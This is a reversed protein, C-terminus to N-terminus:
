CFVFAIKLPISSVLEEFFNEGKVRRRLIDSGDSGLESFEEPELSLIYTKHRFQSFNVISLASKSSSSLSSISIKLVLEVKKCFLGFIQFTKFISRVIFGAM